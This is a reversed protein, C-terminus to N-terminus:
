PASFPKRRRTSDRSSAGPVPMSVRTYTSEQVQRLPTSWEWVRSYANRSVRGETGGPGRVSGTTTAPSWRTSKSPSAETVAAM